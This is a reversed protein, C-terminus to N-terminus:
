PFTVIREVPILIEAVSSKVQAAQPLNAEVTVELLPREAGANTPVSVEVRFTAARNPEVDKPGSVNKWEM